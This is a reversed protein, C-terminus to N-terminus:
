RAAWAATIAAAAALVAALFLVDPAAMSPRTLMVAEGSFGRALMARYVRESRELSRLLLVGLAGVTARWVRLGTRGGSRADRARMMRQAEDVVVYLYRYLFGLQMVLLRPARLWRLAALFCDFRTVGFFVGLTLVSLSFKAAVNGALELGQRTVVLGWPGVPLTWLADGAYLFPLLGLSFLVFPSLIIVRRVLYWVPVGSAAWLVGLVALLAGFPWWIGAPVLISAVLLGLFALTKARPDRRHVLSDRAAFRDLYAHHM